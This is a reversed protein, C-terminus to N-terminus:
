CRNRFGFAEADSVSFTAVFLTMAAILSLTVAKRIM